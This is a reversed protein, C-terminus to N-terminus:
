AVRQTQAIPPAVIAYRAAFRSSEAPRALLYGQGFTVGLRRLVRREAETEIGEAILACGTEGAYYVM